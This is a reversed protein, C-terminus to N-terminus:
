GVDRQPQLISSSVSEECIHVYEIHAKLHDQVARVLGVCDMAKKNTQKNMKVELGKYTCYERVLTSKEV